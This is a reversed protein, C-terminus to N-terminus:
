HFSLYFLYETNGKDGKIPSAMKGKLTWNHKSLWQEFDSVIKERPQDDRVIGHKLIKPDRTEYQPKLLAVIEAKPALRRVYPLINKLPILSVDIVALDIPEPLFEIKRVDTQEMVVIRSDERLKLDLKGRATDVAYVKKAGRELLVQTFGGTAAGIDACIKEQASIGFERLAADLKKAGRGVWKKGGRIEIEAYEDLMQAPSIAKQGNVM